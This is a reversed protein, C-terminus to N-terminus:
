EKGRHRALRLMAERVEPDAIADAQLRVNRASEDSIAQAPRAVDSETEQASAVKVRISRIPPIGPIEAMRHQITSVQYRIKAAWASSEAILIATDGRVLAFRIHDRLPEDIALRILQDVTRQDGAERFLQRLLSNQTVIANLKTPSPM